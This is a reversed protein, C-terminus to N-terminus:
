MTGTFWRWTLFFTPERNLNVTFLPTPNHTCGHLGVSCPCVMAVSANAPTTPTTRSAGQVTHSEAGAVQGFGGDVNHCVDLYAMTHTRDLHDLASLLLLTSVACYLLCTDIESFANNVFVSSLQQLGLIAPARHEHLIACLILDIQPFCPMCQQHELVYKLRTDITDSDRCVHASLCMSTLLM